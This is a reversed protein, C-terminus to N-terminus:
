RQNRLKRELRSCAWIDAQNCTDLVLEKAESDPINGRYKLIQTKGRRLKRMILEWASIDGLEFNQDFVGSEESNYTKGKALLIDFRDLLVIPLHNFTPDQAALLRLQEIIRHERETPVFVGDGASDPILQNDTAM